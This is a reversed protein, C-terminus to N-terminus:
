IAITRGVEHMDCLKKYNKLVHITDDIQPKKLFHDRNLDLGLKINENEACVIQFYNNLDYEAIYLSARYTEVLVVAIKEM